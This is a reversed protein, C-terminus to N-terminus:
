RCSSYNPLAKNLTFKLVCLTTNQGIFVSWEEAWSSQNLSSYRIWESGILVLRLINVLFVLFYIRSRCLKYYLNPCTSARTPFFASTFFFVRVCFLLWSISVTSGSSRIHQHGLQGLHGPTRIVWVYLSCLPACWPLTMSDSTGTCKETLSM